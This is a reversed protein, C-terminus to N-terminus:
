KRTLIKKVNVVNTGGSSEVPIVNREGGELRVLRAITEQAKQYSKLTFLLNSKDCADSASAASCIIGQGTATDVGPSLYIRGAQFAAQFKPSVVECRKQPTYNRGFFESKWVILAIPETQGAALVLTTPLNQKSSPDYSQGCYIRTAASDSQAPAPTTTQPPTQALIPNITAMGLGTMLLVSLFLNKMIEIPHIYYIPNSSELEPILPSKLISQVLLSLFHLIPL